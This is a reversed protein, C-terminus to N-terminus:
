SPMIVLSGMKLGSVLNLCVEKKCSVSKPFSYIKHAKRFNGDLFFLDPNVRHSITCAHNKERYNRLKARELLSSMYGFHLVIKQVPSLISRRLYAVTFHLCTRQADHDSHQPPSSWYLPWSGKAVLFGLWKQLAHSQQSFRDLPVKVRSAYNTFHPSSSICRWSTEPLVVLGM